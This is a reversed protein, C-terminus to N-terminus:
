RGSRRKSKAAIAVQERVLEHIPQLFGRDRIELRKSVADVPFVQVQNDGAGFHAAIQSGFSDTIVAWQMGLTDVLYQGFALGISKAVTDPDVEAPEAAEITALWGMLWAEFTRDLVSPDLSLNGATALYKEVLSRAQDVCNAVEQVQAESLRSYSQWAVSARNLGTASLAEANATAAPPILPEHGEWGCLAGRAGLEHQLWRLNFKASFDLCAPWIPKCDIPDACLSVFVGNTFEWIQADLSGDKLTAQERYRAVFEDRGGLRKLLKPGFYNGWYIGRVRDGKKSAARVWNGQEVWRHLPLSMMWISGYCMGAHCDESRALDVLGYIPSHRDAVALNVKLMDLVVNVGTAELWQGSITWLLDPLTEFGEWRSGDGHAFYFDADLTGNRAADDRAFTGGGYIPQPGKVLLPEVFELSGIEFEHSGWGGVPLGGAHWFSGTVRHEGFARTASWIQAFEPGSLGTEPEFYINQVLHYDVHYRKRAM